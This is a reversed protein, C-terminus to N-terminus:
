PSIFQTTSTTNRNGHSTECIEKTVIDRGTDKSVTWTYGSAGWLDHPALFPKPPAVNLVGGSPAGLICAIIGPISQVTKVGECRVIPCRATVPLSTQKRYQVGSPFSVVVSRDLRNLVVSFLRIGWQCHASTISIVLVSIGCNIQPHPFNYCGSFRNDKRLFPRSCSRAM